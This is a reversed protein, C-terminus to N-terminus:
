KSGAYTVHSFAYQYEDWSLVQVGGPGEAENNWPNVITVTAQGQDDINIDAVQYAHGYYITADGASYSHQDSHGPRSSAVMVYGDDNLKAMMEPTLDVDFIDNWGAYTFLGKGSGYVDNTGADGLFMAMAHSPYDSEIEPYGGMALAVAKELVLPWLVNPERNGGAYRPVGDNVIFDGDVVYSERKGDIWLKVTYTGDGNDTIMERIADPNADALAAMTALLWCDGLSGQRVQDGRIGFSGGLFLPLYDFRGQAFQTIENNPDDTFPDPRVDALLSNCRTLAWIEERALADRTWWLTMNRTALPIQMLWFAGFPEADKRLQDVAKLHASRRSSLRNLDAILEDLASLVGDLATRTLDTSREVLAVKGVAQTTHSTEYHDPIRRWSAALEQAHERIGAHASRMRDVAAELVPVNVSPSAVASRSILRWPIM